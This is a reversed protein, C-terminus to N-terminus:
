KKVIEEEKELRCVKIKIEDLKDAKHAYKVTLEIAKEIVKDSVKKGRVVTTPGPVDVLDIIYDEPLVIKHLRECDEKDRGVVILVDGEWFMRGNRILQVDESRYEPWHESMDKLRAGFGPDTLLCGGAPTQYKKIRFTEVLKLQEWRGRGSIGYLKDRDVWGKEEAETPSLRKASLPRLLKGELGAEREIRKLAQPNQSMPRQGLVEGSAVFDFGEKEMIEKAKKIMLLHCDVCPNMWKGRGFKPNKVIELHEPGVDEVRLEIGNAKAIEQAKEQSFFYTKFFIPVVEVNQAQLIKYAIM